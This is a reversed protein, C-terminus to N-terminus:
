LNYELRVQPMKNKVTKQRDCIEHAIVVQM